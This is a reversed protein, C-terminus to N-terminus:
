VAFRINAEIQDVRIMIEETTAAKVKPVYAVLTRQKRTSVAWLLKLVEPCWASGRNPYSPKHDVKIGEQHLGSVPPVGACVSNVIPNTGKANV